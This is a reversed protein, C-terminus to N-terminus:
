MLKPKDSKDAQLAKRDQLAALTNYIRQESSEIQVIARAGNVIANHTNANMLSSANLKRTNGMIINILERGEEKQAILIETFEATLDTVGNTGTITGNTQQISNNTESV